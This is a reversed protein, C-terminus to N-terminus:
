WTGWTAGTMTGASTLEAAETPSGTGEDLRYAVALGDWHIGDVYTQRFFESAERVGPSSSGRYLAVDKVRGIASDIATNVNEGIHLAGANVNWDVGAFGSAVLDVVTILQGNIGVAVHDTAADFLVAVHHDAGATFVGAAYGLANVVNTGTTLYVNIGLTTQGIAFSSATQISGLSVITHISAETGVPRWWFTLAFSEQGPLFDSDQAFSVRDNGSALVICSQSPRTHVTLPWRRRRQIGMRALAAEAHRVGWRRYGSEVPHVGDSSIEHAPQGGYADVFHVRSGFEAVVGPLAANYSNRLALKDAWTAGSASGARWTAISSVHLIANPYYSLYAAILARKDTLMDSLNRLAAVDNTGTTDIILHPAYTSGLAAAAAPVRALADAIRDGGVGEHQWSSMDTSGIIGGTVNDIGRTGVADFEAEARFTREFARRSLAEKTMSDGAFMIRPRAIAALPEQATRGRFRPIIMPTGEFRDIRAHICETAAEAAPAHYTQPVFDSV